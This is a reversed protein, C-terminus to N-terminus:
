RACNRPAHLQQAPGHTGHAAGARTTTDDTTSM